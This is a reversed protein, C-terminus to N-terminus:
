FKAVINDHYKMFSMLQKQYEDNLKVFSCPDCQTKPVTRSLKSM